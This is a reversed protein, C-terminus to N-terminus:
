KHPFQGCEAKIETAAADQDRVELRQSREDRREALSGMEATVSVLDSNNNNNECHLRSYTVERLVDPRHSSSHHSKAPVIRLPTCARRQQPHLHATHDHTSQQDKLLSGLREEKSKPTPFDASVMRNMWPWNTSSYSGVISPSNNAPLSYWPSLVSM